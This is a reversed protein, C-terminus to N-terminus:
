GIRRLGTKWNIASCSNRLCDEKVNGSVAHYRRFVAAPGDHFFCASSLVKIILLSRCRPQIIVFVAAM